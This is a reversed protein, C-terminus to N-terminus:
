ASNLSSVKYGLTQTKSFHEIVAQEARQKELRDKELKERERQKEREKQKEVEREQERFLSFIM